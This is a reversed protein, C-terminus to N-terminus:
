SEWWQDRQQLKRVLGSLLHKPGPGRESQVSTIVQPDDPVPQTIPWARGYLVATWRGTAPDKAARAVIARFGCVDGCPPFHAIINARGPGDSKFTLETKM